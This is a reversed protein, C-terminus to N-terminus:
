RHSLRLGVLLPHDGLSRGFGLLGLRRAIQLHLLGIILRRHAGLASQSLLRIVDGGVLCLLLDNGLLDADILDLALLLDFDLLQFDLALRELQFGGDALM